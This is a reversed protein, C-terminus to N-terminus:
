MRHKTKYEHLLAPCNLNKEDIWQDDEESYNKWRVLFQIKRARRRHKILSQVEYNESQKQNRKMSANLTTKLECQISPTQNLKFDLPTTPEMKIKTTPLSDRKLQKIKALLTKNEQKLAAEAVNNGQLTQKLNAHETKLQSYDGSIKQLQTKLQKNEENKEQLAFYTRHYDRQLQIYDSIIKKGDM